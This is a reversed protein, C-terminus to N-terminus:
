NEAVVNEQLQTANFAPTTENFKKNTCASNM